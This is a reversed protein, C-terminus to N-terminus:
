SVWFVFRESTAFEDSNSLVVRGAFEWKGIIDLITSEPNTNQYNLLFEGPTTATGSSEASVSGPSGLDYTFTTASVIKVPKRTANFNTTGTITILEGEALLNTAAVTVTVIGDVGNGVINTITLAQSPNEPDAILTAAKEFNTGDPKYFVIFQSTIDTTDVDSDDLCDTLKVQFTAGLHNLGFVTAM